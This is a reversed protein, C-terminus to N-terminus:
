LALEARLGWYVLYAAWLTLVLSTALSLWWVLRSTAIRRLHLARMLGYISFYLFAGHALNYVISALYGSWIPGGARAFYNGSTEWVLVIVAIGCLTALLPYVQVAMRPSEGGTTFFWRPVWTFAFVVSGVMLLATIIAAGLRLDVDLEPLRRFTPGGSFQLVTGGSRVGALAFARSNDLRRYIRGAVRVYPVSGNTLDQLSLEGNGAALHTLGLISELYWSSRSRPTFPEYWGTAEATQTEDMIGPPPPKPAMLGGLLFTRVVERLRNMADENECNIMLVYGVKEDPLYALDAQAGPVVGGHGHFIWNRWQTTYNNLGYGLELGEAAAYTSTPREMRDIADRPLLQTGHRSGRNLLFELLNAMDRPSAVVGGSPRMIVNEFHFPVKQGDPRYGMALRSRVEPTDFYSASSMGLPKFWTQAVYDEFREGTAKEVVYAAVAPGVNTYSFCTGPRWRSTRSRPYSALGVRRSPEPMPNWAAEEPANDDWGSTHELLHVIRIPDTSEWPNNFDVEPVRSRLTDQLNIRGDQQLKLVSLAVFMKSISGIPFLTDETAARGLDVDAIGVSAVWALGRGYLAIGMGPTKTAGLVMEIRERLEPITEPPPPKGSGSVARTAALAILLAAHLRM